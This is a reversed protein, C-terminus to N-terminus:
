RYHLSASALNAIPEVHESGDNMRVRLWGAGDIWNTGVIAKCYLPAGERRHLTIADVDPRFAARPLWAPLTPREADCSRLWSANVGLQDQGQGVPCNGTETFFVLEMTETGLYDSTPNAGPAPTVPRSVSGFGGWKGTIQMVQGNPNGCVLATAVVRVGLPLGRLADLFDSQTQASEVPEGEVQVSCEPDGDCCQPGNCAPCDSADCTGQDCQNPGTAGLAGDIIEGLRKQLDTVFDNIAGTFTAALAARGPTQSYAGPNNPANRQSANQSTSQVTSQLTSM